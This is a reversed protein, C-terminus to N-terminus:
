QQADFAAFAATANAFGEAQIADAQVLVNFSMTGDDAVTIVGKDIAKQIDEESASKAIGVFNWVNWETMEGPKLPEVRTYTYVDYM